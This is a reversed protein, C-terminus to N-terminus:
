GTGSPRRRMRPRQQGQLHEPSVNPATQTSARMEQMNAAHKEHVIVEVTAPFEVNGSVHRRAHAYQHHDHRAEVDTAQNPRPDASGGPEEHGRGGRRRGWSSLRIGAGVTLMFLNDRLKEVEVVKAAAACGCRRSAAAVRESGDVPRSRWYRALVIVEEHLELHATVPAVRGASAV